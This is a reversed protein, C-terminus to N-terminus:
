SRVFEEHAEQLWELARAAESAVLTVGLGAMLLGQLQQLSVGQALARSAHIRFPVEHGLVALQMALVIECTAPEVGPAPMVHERMQRYLAMAQPNAEALRASSPKRNPNQM